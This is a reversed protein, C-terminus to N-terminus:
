HKFDHRDYAGPGFQDLHATHYSFKILMGLVDQYMRPLVVIIFQVLQKELIEADALRVVKQLRHAVIRRLRNRADNFFRIGDHFLFLWIRDHEIAIGVGAQRHYCGFTALYRNEMHLRPVAAKILAHRFLQVAFHQVVETVNVQYQGLMRATIQNGLADARFGDDLGTRVHPFHQVVIHRLYLLGIDQLSRTQLRVLEKDDAGVAFFIHISRLIQQIQHLREIGQGFVVVHRHNNGGM